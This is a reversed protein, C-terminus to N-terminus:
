KDDLVTDILMLGRTAKLRRGRILRVELTTVTSVFFGEGDEIERFDTQGADGLPPPEM